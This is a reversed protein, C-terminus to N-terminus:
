SRRIREISEASFPLRQRKEIMWVNGPQEIAAHTRM